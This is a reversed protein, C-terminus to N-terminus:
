CVFRIGTYTNHDVQEFVARGQRRQGIVRSGVTEYGINLTEAKRQLVSLEFSRADDRAITVSYENQAIVRFGTKNILDVIRELPTMMM